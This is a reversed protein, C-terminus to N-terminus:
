QNGFHHFLKTNPPWLDGPDASVESIEPATTDEVTITQIGSVSNGSADEATWEVDTDGLPITAPADNTIVPSADVIDTATAAGISVPTLM